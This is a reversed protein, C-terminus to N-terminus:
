TGLELQNRVLNWYAGHQAVLEAHTGMEALKGNALVVIQDAHCVTSLRHAVIVVTRGRFFVDLNKMIVAENTADLANTAEDFFIFQPDKYVARAILIRQRQGQSIGTGDTGIKTHLGAPLGEMFEQLNAVRVANALKLADIREAGVAINRAITDSFIFGDQLVVGCQTRWSAHSINRLSAEGLRIEGATPDYFKLLLKLLTTKGSGSMGVIATTKGAPIHLDIHSLVLENGAGPYQFSLQHLRFGATPVDQLMSHGPPEEDTLTHIENLRELSIRADQLGQSFSVLQSLPGNIQGIIQQMALMAGLTMQGKVVAQAALCTILINKGDNILFAGVQQYQSLRLSQMQWRFLRAQLREWGWRSYREAGALKIEQMGQILQVLDSQSQASLGFRKTDLKRRHRLFLLIWGAYLLNSVIYVGFIPLSYLGVVVSLLVISALAFPLSFAQGTVFSEIRQHDGVRQLIDGFRKTEFFALPLRMLKILFDSLISLNVRTSVHLLLWSQIFEVSLRGAMLMLQAALVLYIFPVNQTSVGIDVVSQTLFPVLLQLGSSVVLGVALQALLRKYQGLYGLVRAFSYRDSQEDDQEYFAPTPELLLAVGLRQTEKRASLWGQCFEEINYTVLGRSPDAVRVIGRSAASGKTLASDSISPVSGEIDTAFTIPTNSSRSNVISNKPKFGGFVNHMWNNGLQIDYVVVFHNQQWHVICPLQAERALKEFSIQVGLTRFGISESAEAIGLLSVGDKGLQARKRLSQATFHRGYHKAVMRLCTPGCDMQDHQQYHTFRSM